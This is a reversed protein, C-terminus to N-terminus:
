FDGPEVQLVKMGKARLADVVRNRDDFHAIVDYVGSVYNDVLESKVIADNRNDGSPRMYLADLYLGWGELWEETAQRHDESRGSLGIFAVGADKGADQLRWLIDSLAFDAVDEHYRTPDYPSRGTMRALTGDIDFSYALTTGPAYPKFEFVDVNLDVKPLKGAEPIQYRQALSRIVKEGVIRERGADRSVAEAIPVPFDQLTVPHIKAWKRVYSSKLNTADVVVSKGAKLANRVAAEEVRSVENEDVGEGWYSGYLMVRIDDRNVRLRSSPDASVWARAWTSKGSGPLGRTVVLETM